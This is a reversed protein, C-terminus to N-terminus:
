WHESGCRAQVMEALAASIARGIARRDDAEREALWQTKLLFSVVDGSYEVPCTALGRAARQRYRADRARAAQRRRSPSPDRM